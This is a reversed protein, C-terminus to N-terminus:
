DGHEVESEKEQPVSPKLEVELLEKKIRIATKILEHLERRVQGLNVAQKTAEEGVPLIEQPDPASNDGLVNADDQGNQGETHQVSEVGSSGGSKEGVADGDTSVASNGPTESSKSSTKDRDRKECGSAMLVALFLAAFIISFKM